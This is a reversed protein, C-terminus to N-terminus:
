ILLKDKLAQIEKQYKYCWAQANRLLEAKVYAERGQTLSFNEEQGWDSPTYYVKDPTYGYNLM